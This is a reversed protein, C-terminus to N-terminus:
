ALHAAEIEPENVGTVTGRNKDDKNGTRDHAAPSKEDFHPETRRVPQVCHEPDRQQEYDAESKQARELSPQNRGLIAVFGLLTPQIM